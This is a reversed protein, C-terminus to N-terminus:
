TLKRTGYRKNQTHSVVSSRLNAPVHCPSFACHPREPLGPAGYWSLLIQNRPEPSPLMMNFRFSNPNCIEFKLVLINCANDCVCVYIYIHYKCINVLVQCGYTYDCIFCLLFHLFTFSAYSTPNSTSDWAMGISPNRKPWDESAAPLYRRAPKSTPLEPTRHSTVWITWPFTHWTCICNLRAEHKGGPSFHSRCSLLHGEHINDVFCIWM